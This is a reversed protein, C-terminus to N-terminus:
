VGMPTFPIVLPLLGVMLIVRAMALAVVDVLVSARAGWRRPRLSESLMNEM